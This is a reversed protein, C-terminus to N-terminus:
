VTMCFTIELNKLFVVVWVDTFIDFRDSFYVRCQDPICLIHEAEQNSVVDM